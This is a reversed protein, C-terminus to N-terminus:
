AEAVAEKLNVTVAVITDLTAAALAPGRVDLSLAATTDVTAAALAPGAVDMAIGWPPLWSSSETPTGWVEIWCESLYFYIAGIGTITYGFHTGPLTITKAAAITWPASDWQASLEIYQTAFSHTWLSVPSFLQGGVAETWTISTLDCSCAGVSLYRGRVYIRIFDVTGEAGSMDDMTSTTLDAEASYSSVPTNKVYSYVSATEDANDRLTVSVPRVYGLLDAM